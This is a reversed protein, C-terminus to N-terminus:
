LREDILPRLQSLARAWLKRVANPTRGMRRGVEDWGLGQLHHLVLVERHNGPQAAGRRPSM